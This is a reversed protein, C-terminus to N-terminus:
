STSPQSRVHRASRVGAIEKCASYEEIRELGDALLADNEVSVRELDIRVARQIAQVQVLLRVVLGPAQRGRHREQALCVVFLLAEEFIVARLAHQGHLAPQRVLVPDLVHEVRVLVQVDRLDELHDRGRRQLGLDRWEVWDREHLPFELASGRSRVGLREMLRLYRLVEHEDDRWEVYREPDPCHHGARYFGAAHQAGM